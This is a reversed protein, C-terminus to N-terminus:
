ITLNELNHILQKARDLVDDYTSIQTQGHTAANKERIKEQHESTLSARRGIIIIANADLNLTALNFDAQAQAANQRLWRRWDTVQEEAHNLEKTADGAKTFLRHEAHEIEVLLPQDGPLVLLFDPRYATGFRPESECRIYFPSLLVPNEKLFLHLPKETRGENKLKEEFRRVIIRLRETVSQQTQLASQLNKASISFLEQLAFVRAKEPLLLEKANAGYICLETSSRALDIVVHFGFTSREVRHTIRDFRESLQKIVKTPKPRVPERFVNRGTTWNVRHLRWVSFSFQVLLVSLTAYECKAKSDPPSLPGEFQRWM